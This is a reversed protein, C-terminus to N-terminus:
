KKCLSLKCGYATTAQLDFQPHSVNESLSDLAMKVYESEKGTCYRNRNYNGRFYLENNEDIIVAQPTSYVGCSFAIKEDFIVPINLNYKKQIEIETYSRKNNIVVM